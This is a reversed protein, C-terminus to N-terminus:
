DDQNRSQEKGARRARRGGLIRIKGFNNYQINDRLERCPLLVRPCLLGPTLKPSHSSDLQKDVEVVESKDSVFAAPEENVLIQPWSRTAKNDGRSVHLHQDDYMSSSEIGTAYRSGKIVLGLLLIGCLIIRLDGIILTSRRVFRLNPLRAGLRRIKHSDNSKVLRKPVLAECYEVVTCTLRQM